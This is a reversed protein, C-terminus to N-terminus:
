MRAVSEKPLRGLSLGDLYILDPDAFVFRGRFSALEDQQDLQRAYEASIDLLVM